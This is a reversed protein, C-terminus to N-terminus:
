RRTFQMVNTLTTVYRGIDLDEIGGKQACMKPFKPGDNILKQVAPKTIVYGAGGSTYGHPLYTSFRRGVYRPETCNWQALLSELNEWIIYRFNVTCM